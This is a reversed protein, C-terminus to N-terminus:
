REEVPIIRYFRVIWGIIIIMIMKKSIAMLPCGDAGFVIIVVERVIDM